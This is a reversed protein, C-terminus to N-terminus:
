TLLALACCAMVAGIALDVLLTRYKKWGATDPEPLKIVPLVSEPEEIEPMEMPALMKVPIDCARAYEFIKSLVNAGRDGPNQRIVNTLLNLSQAELNRGKAIRRQHSLDDELESLKVLHADLAEPSIASAGYQSAANQLASQKLQNLEDAKGVRSLEVLANATNYPIGKAVIDEKLEFIESNIDILQKVLAALPNAANDKESKDPQQKATDTKKAQAAVKEVPRHVAM